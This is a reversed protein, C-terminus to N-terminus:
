ELQIVPIKNRQLDGIGKSQILVQFGGLGVPNILQHLADRRKLVEPVTVTGSSLANLRDGLGLSMLFLAQKTLGLFKLGIKEGWVELATFDVSASIDQQGPYLYPDNHRSQKWYCQLTGQVRQPHYYRSAIYGYDITIVYGQELKDSVKQLWELAQLNVETRYDDPYSFINIGILHFYEELKPTSLEEITESFEGQSYTEPSGIGEPPSRWGGSGGLYTVYIEQLRGNKVIVQHVPFADVLENSLFCGVISPLEAWSYWNIPLPAELNTKIYEQQQLRLQPSIEILCYNITQYFDKYNRGLYNLIDVALQGSGGGMEVIKFSSPCGLNQWCELLQEALLEGFDAGLSVSTFYDGRSGIKISESTYYGYQPHYLVIEMYQAFTLKGKSLLFQKLHETM